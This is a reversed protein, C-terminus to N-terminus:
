GSLFTSAMRLACVMYLCTVAWIRAAYSLSCVGIRSPNIHSLELPGRLPTLSLSHDCINCIQLQRQIQKNPCLLTLDRKSVPMSPRQPLFPSLSCPLTSWCLSPFEKAEKRKKEATRVLTFQNTLWCIIMGQGSQKLLGKYNSHHYIAHTVLLVMRLRRM